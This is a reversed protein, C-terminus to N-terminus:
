MLKNLCCLNFFLRYIYFYFYVAWSVMQTHAAPKSSVAPTTNRFPQMDYMWLQWALKNIERISLTLALRLRQPTCVLPWLAEGGFRVGRSKVSTVSCSQVQVYNPGGARNNGGHRRMEDQFASPKTTCMGIWGSLCQHVMKLCWNNAWIVELFLPIILSMGTNGEGERGGDRKRERM